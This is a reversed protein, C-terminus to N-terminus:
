ELGLNSHGKSVRGASSWNILYVCVVCFCIFPFSGPSVSLSCGCAYVAYVNTQLLEM